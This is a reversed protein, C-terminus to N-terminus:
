EIETSIIRENIQKLKEVDMKVVERDYTILGNTEIEVDTTQTYVASACGWHILKILKDAYEDYLKLLDEPTQCGTYSWNDGEDKWLHDKVKLGIGGYEGLVNVLEFDWKDIWPDPYHHNDIIDGPKCYKGGRTEGVMFNGGSAMNVLRTPDAEQTFEVVWVTEFQGWAENFPIWVSICPFFKLSEIIEGWEKYFNAKAEATLEYDKGQNYHYVAWAGKSSDSISPMDQFVSLGLIDCWTYWRAPETKMHKRIMNYGMEKTRIIDLAMDKDSPGTYIGNPWYGQDLPGLLFTIEGNLAIRKRMNSDEKVSVERAAAYSYAKDISKGDRVLEVCYRYLAPTDPSWYELSPLTVSLATVESAPATLIAISELGDIKTCLEDPNNYTRAPYLSLRVIDGDQAGDTAVSFDFRTEDLKSVSYTSEIHSVPVREMWVSQWIGSANTYWCGYPELTQKGRPQFDNQTADLVKVDVKQQKGKRLYQTIDFSFPAYGGTHIGISQGNVFVETSWDSAGFHLVVKDKRWSNPVSITRHYWLAEDARLQREVGSDVSGMPFPVTIKGDFRNPVTNQSSDSIAYDWKGNLCNWSSADERVLQPRPYESHPVGSVTALSALLTILKIFM